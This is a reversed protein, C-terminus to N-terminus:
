INVLFGLNNKSQTKTNCTLNNKILKHTLIMLHSKNINKLCLILKELLERIKLRYNVMVNSNTSIIKLLNIMKELVVQRGISGKM